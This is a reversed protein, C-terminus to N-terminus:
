FRRASRRQQPRRLVEVPRPSHDAAAIGGKRARDPHGQPRGPRGGPLSHAPSRLAPPHHSEGHGRLERAGIGPHQAGRAYVPADPGAAAAPGVAMGAVLTYGQRMLFGDGFEAETTPDLSGAARNFFALMGKGGRNSVEYLVAGNSREPHKPKLVYLDSSFEVKGEANRPAKDIDAIIQNIPNAPDVAFYVKGVLKEYPGALGFARGGLLDSRSQIEIRVVGASVVGSCLLSALLLRLWM